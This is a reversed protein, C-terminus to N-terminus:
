KSKVSSIVNHYEGNILQIFYTGKALNLQSLNWDVQHTGLGLDTVEKQALLRGYADTIRVFSPADILLEVNLQVEDALPNPYVSLAPQIADMVPGVFSRARVAFGTVLTKKFTEGEVQISVNYLGENLGSPIQIDFTHDANAELNLVLSEGNEIKNGELDATNRIVVSATPAIDTAQFNDVSLGLQIAENAEFSTNSPNLGSEYHLTAGQEYGVFALYEKASSEIEFNGAEFDTLKLMSVYGKGTTNKHQSFTPTEMSKKVGNPMKKSITVTPNAEAHILTIEIDKAGKEIAFEKNNDKSTIIQYNSAANFVPNSLENQENPNSTPMLPTIFFPKVWDWVKWSMAIDIHDTLGSPNGYGPAWVEFGGPRTSSYYPTVGDNGGNFANGGMFNLIIGGVTITPSLITTGAAYGWGGFNIFKNPENDPHSDADPRGVGTMYYTTSTATGQGLGILDVLDSLIFTTEAIDALGTGWFPTGLTIVRNVKDHKGQFLMAAESAKGGNSHAVLIVDNVGYRAAIDDIMEGLIQGNRLYGRGRTMAVFATRYGDFYARDYMNNGPLFWLNSLDVFGHVFVIVPKFSSLAPEDGYYIASSNISGFFAPTLLWPHPLDYEAYNNVQASTTNSIGVLMSLTFFCLLIRKM